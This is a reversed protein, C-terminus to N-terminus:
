LACESPTLCCGCWDTGGCILVIHSAPTFLLFPAAVLLSLNGRGWKRETGNSQDVVPQTM